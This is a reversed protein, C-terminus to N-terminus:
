IKSTIHDLEGAAENLVVSPPFIPEAACHPCRIAGEKVKEKCKPCPWDTSPKAAAEKRKCLLLLKIFIFLCVAVMLFHIITQIFNGYNLTIAGAEKAKAVTPYAVQNIADESGKKYRMIWFLDQLSANGLLGIVPSFIDAVLSAVVAGFAAGIIVGVALDIINGRAIFKGFDAFFGEVKETGKGALAHGRARLDSM